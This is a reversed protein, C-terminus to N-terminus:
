WYALAHEYIKATRLKPEGSKDSERYGQMMELLM